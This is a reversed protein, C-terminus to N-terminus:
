RRYEGRSSTSDKAIEKYELTPFVLKLMNPGGELAYNAIGCEGVELGRLSVGRCGERAGSGKAHGKDTNQYTFIICIFPLLNAETSFAGLVARSFKFKESGYYHCFDWLIRIKRM